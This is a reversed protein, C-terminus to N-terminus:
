ILFLPVMVAKVSSYTTKGVRSFSFSRLGLPKPAQNLRQAPLSPNPGETGALVPRAIKVPARTAM